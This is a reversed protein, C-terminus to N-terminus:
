FFLFAGQMSLFLGLAAVLFSGAFLPISMSIISASLLVISMQYATNAYGIWPTRRKALNREEELAKAKEAIEKKDADMRAKEELFKEKLAPTPATLSAIEYAVGRGNKAQYWAWQNNASITDDMITSSLKGGYWTNVALFLAFLNIVFGARTKIKLEKEERSGPEPLPAKPDKRLIGVVTDNVAM